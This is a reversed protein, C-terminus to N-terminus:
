HRKGDNPVPTSASAKGHPGVAIMRLRKLIETFDYAGPPVFTKNLIPLSEARM